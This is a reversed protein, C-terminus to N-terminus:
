GNKFLEEESASDNDYDYDDGDANHNSHERQNTSPMINMSQSHQMLRLNLPVQTVM